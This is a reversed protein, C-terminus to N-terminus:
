NLKLGKLAAFPSQPEEWGKDEYSIAKNCPQDCLSCDGNAKQPPAPINPESLAVLEHFYESADFQNGSVEYVTPGSDHLDSYHNPKVYHENRDQPLRHILLESFKQDIAFQFDEGCRSCQEPLQTQITGQLEYTGNQLPRLHFQVNYPTNGILDSLAANLEGTNQNLLYNEGEPALDLLNIIM